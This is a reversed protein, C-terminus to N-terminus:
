EVASAWERLSEPLYRDADAHETRFARLQAAAAPQDGSAYLTEILTAWQAPPMQATPAALSSSEARATAREAAAAPAPAPAGAALEGSARSERSLQRPGPVADSLSEGADVPEQPPAVASDPVPQDLKRVENERVRPAIAAPETSGQMTAKASVGPQEAPVAAPQQLDMRIPQELERERPLLQVLLFALGAVAAAAALPQWTAFWPRRTRAAALIAADVHPRPEELSAKRWAADIATDFDDGEQPRWTKM